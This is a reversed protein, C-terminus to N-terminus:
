DPDVHSSTTQMVDHMGCTCIKSTSTAKQPLNCVKDAASNLAKLFVYKEVYGSSANFASCTNCDRAVENFYHSVWLRSAELAKHRAFLTASPDSVLTCNAVASAVSAAYASAASRAADSVSRSIFVSTSTGICLYFRAYEVAFV